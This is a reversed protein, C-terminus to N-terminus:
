GALAPIVEAGFLEISRRADDNSLGPYNMRVTWGDIDLREHYRRMEAIVVEPDGIIFRDEALDQWAQDFTDGETVDDQSWSSYTDYKRRLPEKAAAIAEETSEAVFIERGFQIHGADRFTRAREDRYDAIRPQAGSIPVHGLMWEDTMRAARRISKENSAGMWIPPHPDQLPAPSTTVSEFQYFDGDFDVHEETWLRKILRIGEILKGVAAERDLGFIDFEKPRYGQAVGLRFNGGTLVDMTAGFEAIRVPHHYPLLCVGSGISLSDIQAAVYAMVAENNLYPSSTAHHEPVVIGDWGTRDAAGAHSALSGGVTEMSANQDFETTLMLDFRM